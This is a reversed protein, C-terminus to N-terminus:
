HSQEAPLASDLFTTFDKKLQALSAKNIYVMHGSEYYTLSINKRLSPDLQMTNITYQTALFPTALDFYGNAIWVKLYKNKTMADRLTEAVNLYENEVNSFNWPQVRGTLIEYPIDNKYGLDRRLYDNITATFPALVGADYSPDYDPTEGAADRDIGEFRSDYRGVTKRESRELEKCFRFINVRLNTEEIYQPSLGTLRSLEQVIKQEEEKPLQDGQMLASAYEGLAFTKSEDLAKQMNQELDPSLKKHYWATATYSPLFLIYPLDNGAAFEATQFNLIASVLCIGNLYLGYRNELYGSLGAARTTGYSEGALFKPSAWREYRTTYLRIFEGVSHIDENYGTFQKKDEGPAPRSYGTEVPDIFVLDTQDLWTYENDVLKYPPTLPEGDDKLLVRKPGLAGLHLWVSSSGPGGNFTFCIPRTAPDAVGDKTYAIFFINAKAKGNEDKMVMYGATATYKLTKGDIMMQHHTVVPPAEIVAATSDNTQQFDRQPKSKGAAFLSFSFSFIFFIFFVTLRHKM